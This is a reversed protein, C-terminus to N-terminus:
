EGAFLDKIWNWVATAAKFVYPLAVAAVAGAVFGIAFEFM